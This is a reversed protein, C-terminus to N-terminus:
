TAYTHTYNYNQIPFLFINYSDISASRKSTWAQWSIINWHRGMQNSFWVNMAHLVSCIMRMDWERRNSFSKLWLSFLRGHICPHSGIRELIFVHGGTRRIAMHFQPWLASFKLFYFLLNNDHRESKTMWLTKIFPNNELSFGLTSISTLVLNIPPRFRCKRFLLISPLIDISPQLISSNLQSSATSFGNLLSWNHDVRRLVTFSLM